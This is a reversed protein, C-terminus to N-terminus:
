AIRARAEDIGLEFSPAVLEAERQALAEADALPPEHRMKERAALLALLLGREFRLRWLVRLRRVRYLTGDMDLSIARAPGLEAM